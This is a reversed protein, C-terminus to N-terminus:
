KSHKSNKHKFYYLQQQELSYHHYFCDFQTVKKGKQPSTLNPALLGLFILGRPVTKDTAVSFLQSTFHTPTWRGRLMRASPSTPSSM